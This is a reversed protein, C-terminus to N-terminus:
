KFWIRKHSPPLHIRLIRNFRKTPLSWYFYRIGYFKPFRKLAKKTMTIAFAGVVPVVFLSDMLAGIFFPMLYAILDNTTFSLFRVPADLHKLLLQSPAKM